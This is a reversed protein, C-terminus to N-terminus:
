QNLQAMVTAASSTAAAMTIFYQSGPTGAQIQDARKRVRSKASLAAVTLAKPSLSNQNAEMLTIVTMTKRTIPRAIIAPMRAPGDGPVALQVRLSAGKTLPAAPTSPMKMTAPKEKWPVSSIATAAPSASCGSLDM